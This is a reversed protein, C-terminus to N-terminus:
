KKLEAAWNVIVPFPIVQGSNPPAAFLFRKGDPSLDWGTTTAGAPADFMRRPTGTQFGKGTDIDVAMVQSVVSLYFLEKGDQRWIPRLGGGKSVLWRAGTGAAAQPTFPRVYIENVGSETSAYALWRGDPSVRAYTEPFKTQLLLVPKAEGPFPLAWIDGATKGGTSTFLLFRGDKTWREVSKPEDTKLLLKEEGSGDAPKIYLDMQGGRDSSFAINNGDPSWAPYDDRAPDFTFRTSSGRAVDLIWIDRSQAPGMAVAVRSSDPSIAPLSYDGPDGLTGTPNGQQDFWTLVNRAGSGGRYVLTGTDSVSFL